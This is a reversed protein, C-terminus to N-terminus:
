NRFLSAPIAQPLLFPQPIIAGVPHPEARSSRVTRSRSTPPEFGGVGVKTKVVVICNM